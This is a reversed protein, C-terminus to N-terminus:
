GGIAWAVVTVSREGLTHPHLALEVRLEVGPHIEALGVM